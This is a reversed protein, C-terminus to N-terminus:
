LCLDVVMCVFVDVFMCVNVCVGVFVMCVNGSVCAFM